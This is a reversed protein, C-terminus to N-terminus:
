RELDPAPGGAESFPLTPWRPGSPDLKILRSLVRLRADAQAILSAPSAWRRGPFLADIPSQEDRNRGPSKSGFGLGQLPPHLADIMASEAFLASAASSCPLVAIYLDGEQISTMGSISQRYRGVRERLSGAAVGLYAPYASSAILSSLVPEVTRTATFVAYIGPMSPLDPKAIRDYRERPLSHLVDLLRRRMPVEDWPELAATTRVVTRRQDQVPGTTGGIPETVAATM